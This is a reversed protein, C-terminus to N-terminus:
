LDCATSETKLYEITRKRLSPFSELMVKVIEWRTEHSDMTKEAIQTALRTNFAMLRFGIRADQSVIFTDDGVLFRFRTFKLWISSQEIVKTMEARCYQM